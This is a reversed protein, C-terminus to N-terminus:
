ARGRAARAQMLWERPSGRDPGADVPGPPMLKADISDVTILGGSLRNGASGEVTAVLVFALQEETDQTRLEDVDRIPYDVDWLYDSASPGGFSRVHVADGVMLTLRAGVGPELNSLGKLTLRLTVEAPFTGDRPVPPPPDAGRFTAKWLLVRRRWDRPVGPLYEAVMSDLVMSFQQLAPDVNSNITTASGPVFLIEGPDFIM